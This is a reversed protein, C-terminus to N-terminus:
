FRPNLDGVRIPRRIVHVKVAEAIPGRGQRPKLEDHPVEVAGEAHNRGVREENGEALGRRHTRAVVRFYLLSAL